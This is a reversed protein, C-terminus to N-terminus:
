SSSCSGNTRPTRLFDKVEALEAAMEPSDAAPPPGPRLQGPSSLLWPKWLSEEANVAAPGTWKGPENPIAGEWQM